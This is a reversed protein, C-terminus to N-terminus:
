VHARGIERDDDLASFLRESPLGHFLRFQAPARGPSLRILGGESMVVWVAGSRDERVAQATGNVEVPVVDHLLLRQGELRFVAARTALWLRGSPGVHFARLRSPPFKPTEIVDAPNDASHLTKSALLARGRGDLFVAFVRESGSHRQFAGGSKVFLQGSGDLAWVRGDASEVVSRFPGASLGHKTDFREVQSGIVRDVGGATAVWVGGGAAGHVANVVDSSLGQRRTMRRLVSDRLRVVGGGEGFAVWLTGERDEYLLRVPRGNLPHEPAFTEFREGNRRFLGQDTGVWLNLRRDQLLALVRRAPLGLVPRLEGAGATQIRHLGDDSTGVWVDYRADVVLAQVTMTPGVAIFRTGARKVLGRSTGVWLTGDLGQALARIRLDPLGSEQRFAELRGRHLRALGAATGVWLAGGVDLLLARVYHHPLGQPPLLVRIDGGQVNLLGSGSDSALWLLGPAVEVMDAIAADALPARRGADHLPRARHGDFSVVGKATALWVFGDSRHVISRISPSPLGERETLSEHEYSDLPTAPDLALAPGAAVWSALAGLTVSSGPRLLRAASAKSM